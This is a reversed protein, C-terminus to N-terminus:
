GGVITITVHGRMPHERKKQAMGRLLLRDFADPDFRPRVAPMISAAPRDMLCPYLSGDSAIRIRNCASCFNCSMPTIFGVTATEGTHLRVRFSAASDSGQTLPTWEAIVGDLSARMAEAPIYRDACSSALPGMPMLEIFRIAVGRAAAFRVLGPLQAENEGRLVVTNIKLPAMCTELAADIGKRVRELGDVGTTCKFQERDLSDLSVNVRGLGADAYERARTALSLGNTTMALDAIGEIRALREIIEVLDSRATPDGGTLRVKRVGHSGVLRRVARELEAPTLMDPAHNTHFSPGCYVCRLQCVPTLSLRLYSVTRGHSDHM